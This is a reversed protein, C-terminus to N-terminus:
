LAALWDDIMATQQAATLRMSSRLAQIAIGDVLVTATRALREPNHHAAIDGAEIAKRFLRTLRNLWETYRERALKGVDPDIRAHDWFVLWVSWLARAKPTRPLAEYIVQRLGELGPFSIEEEDMRPRVIEAAHESAALFLDNKAPFYHVLAGTTYGATRAVNRVTLGQLGERALIDFAAAAFAARRKEHEAHKAM